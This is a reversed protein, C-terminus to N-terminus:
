TRAQLGDNLTSRYARWAPVMSLVLAAALVAAIVTIETRAPWGPRLALGFRSQVSPGLGLLLGYALMIGAVTGALALAGSEMVLLAFIHWPRAGVSRLIAMERRRENLSTLMATVM